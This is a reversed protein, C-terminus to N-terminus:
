AARIILSATLGYRRVRENWDPKWSAGVEIGVWGVAGGGTTVGRLTPLLSEVLRAGDSAAEDTLAYYDIDVRPQDLVQQVRGGGIRTVQVVPLVQELNGPLRRVVRPGTTAPPIILATRLWGTLLLEVDPLQVVPYTM